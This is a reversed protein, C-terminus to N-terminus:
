CQSPATLTGKDRMYKIIKEKNKIAHTVMSEGRKRYLFLPEPIVSVTYGIATGRTWFDWDEFGDKMKEDYGGLVEWMKKSFLACHNIQNAFLFDTHTPKPKPNWRRTSNGFEQCQAAIIGFGGYPRRAEMAYEIFTPEIKDDADLPLIFSGLAHAIGTNRTASLGKNNEHKIYKVYQSKTIAYRKAIDETEDISADNVIIIEIDNYTQDLVSKICERLYQAQNYCPIIVSVKM